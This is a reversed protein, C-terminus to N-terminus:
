KEEKGDNEEKNYETQFEEVIKKIDERDYCIAMAGLMGAFRGLWWNMRYDEM